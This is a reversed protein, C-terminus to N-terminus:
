LSTTQCTRLHFGQVETFVGRSGCFLQPVPRLALNILSQPRKLTQKVQKSGKVWHVQMVQAHSSHKFFSVLPV